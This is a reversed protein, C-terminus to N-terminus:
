FDIVQQFFDNTWVFCLECLLSYGVTFILMKHRLFVRQLAYFDNEIKIGHIKCSEESNENVRFNWVSVKNREFICVMDSEFKWWKLFRPTIDM